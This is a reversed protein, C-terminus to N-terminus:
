RLHMIPGPPSRPARGDGLGYAEMFYMFSPYAPLPDTRCVALLQRERLSDDTISKFEADSDMISVLPDANGRYLRSVGVRYTRDECRFDVSETSYAPTTWDTERTGTSFVTYVSTRYSGDPLAISWGIASAMNEDAFVVLVRVDRSDSPRSASLDQSANALLIAFLLSLM